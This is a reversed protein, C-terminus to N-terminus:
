VPQLLVHRKKGVSLRIVGDQVDFDGLRMAEDSVSGGSGAGM